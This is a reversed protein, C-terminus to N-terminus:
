QKESITFITGDGGKEPTCTLKGYCQISHEGYQSIIKCVGLEENKASKSDFFNNVVIREDEPALVEGFLYIEKSTKNVIRYMVGSKRGVITPNTALCYTVIQIKDYKCLKIM